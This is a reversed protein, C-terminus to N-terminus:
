KVREKKVIGRGACTECIEMGNETNINEGQPHGYRDCDPCLIAAGSGIADCARLATERSRYQQFRGITNVAGTDDAHRLTYFRPEAHGNTYDRYRESTVFYGGATFDLVRGDFFRLTGPEFFHHGISANAQKIDEITFYSM